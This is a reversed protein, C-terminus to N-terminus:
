HCNPAYVQLSLSSGNADSSLVYGYGQSARIGVSPRASFDVHLLDVPGTIAPTPARSAVAVHVGTNTPSGPMDQYASVVLAHDHDIWAAPGATWLGLPAPMQCFGVGSGIYMESVASVPDFHTSLGDSVLWAVVDNRVGECPLYDTTYTWIVTGDPGSGVYNSSTAFGNGLSPVEAQEVLSAHPTGPRDLLQFFNPPAFAVLRDSSGSSTAAFPATIGMSPYMVFTGSMDPAATIAGTPPPAHVLAVPSNRTPDSLAIYLDGGAAPFFAADAFPYALLTARAFIMKTTPDTPVDVWAMAVSHSAQGQLAAAYVRRGSAILAKPVLNTTPSAITVPRPASSTVDSVDFAVIGTTTGVFVFPYVAALCSNADLGCALTGPVPFTTTRFHTETSGGCAQRTSDCIGVTCATATACLSYVCTHENPDCQATFCANPPKCDSSATCSEIESTPTGYTVDEVSAFSACATARIAVAALAGLIPGRTM